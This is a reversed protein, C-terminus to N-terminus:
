GGMLLYSLANLDSAPASSLWNTGDSTLVNGSTGAAAPYTPTSAIWNTGDSIIIKGTTASANPFTPTSLVYNTGDSLLVKNATAGASTPITSTSYVNNTGNSILFLGNAGVTNPWLSTSAIYNTGDSILISNLPGATAPFTATTWSPNAAAGGTQLHQGATGPALVAWVAADRYLIDGQTSGLAADIIATLSNDSPSAVGGSINSKITLDTMTALKVNTVVGNQITTAGVNDIAIDGSMAVDTALNGANGVFIHASTLPISLGSPLTTSWSPVNSADSVLVSDAAPAIPGLNNAVNGFLIVNQAITDPFTLTTYANNTGDSRLLKGATDSVSPYSPTSWALGTATASNVQLVQGNVTGVPLRADTTTYTFLDGKTTLPSTFVPFQAILDSGLLYCDDTLGFPARGLYLKDTALVSGASVLIQNINKSM